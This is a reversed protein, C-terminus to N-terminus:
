GFMCGKRDERELNMEGEVLDRMLFLKDESQMNVDSDDNQSMECLRTQRNGVYGLPCSKM